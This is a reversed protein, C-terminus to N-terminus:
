FASRCPRLRRAGRRRVRRGVRPLHAAGALDARLVVTNVFFGILNEIEVRSRNAVPTGVLFTEQGTYRHLLAQFGAMLAMYLTAGERRCFAELAPTLDPPLEFFHDAGAASQQAPAPRDTPLALPEPLERLHERWYTLQETFAASNLWDRQWAAYDGYQIPLPELAAPQGSVRARYFAALERLLIDLSWGDCM